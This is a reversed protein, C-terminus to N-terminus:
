HGVPTDPLINAPMELPREWGAALLPDISAEVADVFFVTGHTPPKADLIADLPRDSGKGFREGYNEVTIGDRGFVRAFTNISGLRPWSGVVLQTGPQQELAYRVTARMLRSGIGAKYLESDGLNLVQVYLTAPAEGKAPQLSFHCGKTLPLSAVFQNRKIRGDEVKPEVTVPSAAVLALKEPQSLYPASDESPFDTEGTIGRLM